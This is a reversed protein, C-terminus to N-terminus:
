NLPKTLKQVKLEENNLANILKKYRIFLKPSQYNFLCCFDIRGKVKKLYKKKSVLKILSELSLKKVKIYLEIMESWRREFIIANKRESWEISNLQRKSLLIFDRMM